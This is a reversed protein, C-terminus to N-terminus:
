VFTLIFIEYSTSLDNKIHQKKVSNSNGTHLTCNECIINQLQLLCLPTYEEIVNSEIGREGKEAKIKKGM